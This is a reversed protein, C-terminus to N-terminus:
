CACPVSKRFFPTNRLVSFSGGQIEKTWCCKSTPEKRTFKVLQDKAAAYNFRLLELIDDWKENYTSDPPSSYNDDWDKICKSVTALKPLLETLKAFTRDHAKRTKVATDAATAALKGVKFASAAVLATRALIHGRLVAQIRQVCSFAFGAAQTAAM